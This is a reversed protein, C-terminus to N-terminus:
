VSIGVAKWAAKVAKQEKSGSGCDAGAVQYSVEAAEQFESYRTLRRLTKYWISGAKTWAYGGINIAVLYFAHNPIGSNIHVGGNDQWGTFKDKMHKPQPDTGLIPDDEYAKEAKMTRLAKATVGPGMIENGILWDARKATQRNRWQTVLSGMVDAFHENLAGRSM